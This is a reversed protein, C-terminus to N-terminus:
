LTAIGCLCSYKIAAVLQIENKKKILVTEKLECHAYFRLVHLISLQLELMWMIDWAVVHYCQVYM